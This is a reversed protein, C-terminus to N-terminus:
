QRDVITQASQEQAEANATRATKLRRSVADAVDRDGSEIAHAYRDL